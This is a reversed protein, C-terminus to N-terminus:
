PRKIHDTVQNYMVSAVGRMRGYFDDQWVRLVDAPVMYLLAEFQLQLANFKDNSIEDMKYPEWKALNIDFM